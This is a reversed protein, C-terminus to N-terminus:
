RLGAKRLDEHQRELHEPYKYVSFQRDWELSYEPFLSTIQAAAQQAEQDQGLRIYNMAAIAYYYYSIFKEGRSLALKFFEEALKIAEEHRGVYYYCMALEGLYWSTYSPQLRLAKQVLAIAEEFRGAFRLIHAM